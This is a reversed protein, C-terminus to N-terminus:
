HFVHEVSLLVWRVRLSIQLISLLVIYNSLSLSFISYFSLLGLFNKNLMIEVTNSQCPYLHFLPGELHSLPSLCKHGSLRLDRFRCTLEALQGRIAVCLCPVPAHVCVCVCVVLSHFM